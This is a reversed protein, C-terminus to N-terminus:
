LSIKQKTDTKERNGANAIRKNNIEIEKKREQQSNISIAETFIRTRAKSKPNIGSYFNWTILTHMREAKNFAVM